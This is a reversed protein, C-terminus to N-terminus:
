YGTDTTGLPKTAVSLQGGVVSLNNHGSILNALSKQLVKLTLPVRTQTRRGQQRGVIRCQEEGVGAHILELIDKEPKLLAIVYTSARRLFAQARAALVVIEILHSLGRPM